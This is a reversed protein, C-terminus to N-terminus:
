VRAIFFKFVAFLVNVHMFINMRIDIKLIQEMQFFMKMHVISSSWPISSQLNHFVVAWHEISDSLAVECSHYCLFFFWWYWIVRIRFDIKGINQLKYKKKFLSQVIHWLNHICIRTLWFRWYMRRFCFFGKIFDNWIWAVNMSIRFFFFLIIPM